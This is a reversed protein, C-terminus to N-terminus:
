LARPTGSAAPTSYGKVPQSNDGITAASAMLRLETHTMVFARRKLRLRIYRVIKVRARSGGGIPAQPRPSEIATRPESPCPVDSELEFRQELVERGRQGGAEVRMRTFGAVEYRDRATTPM